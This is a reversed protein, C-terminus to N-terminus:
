YYNSLISRFLDDSEELNLDSKLDYILRKKSKTKSKAKGLITKKVNNYGTKKLAKIAISDAAKSIKNKIKSKNLINLVLQLDATFNKAAGDDHIQSVVLHIGPPNQLRGVYWGLISLEDAIQYINHNESCFALLSMIPNGIISLEDSNDIFDHIIKTASM